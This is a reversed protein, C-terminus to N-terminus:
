ALLLFLPMLIENWLRGALGLAASVPAFLSVMTAIPADPLAVIPVSNAIPDLVSDAIHVTSVELSVTEPHLHLGHLPKLPQEQRLCYM